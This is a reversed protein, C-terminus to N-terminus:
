QEPLPMLCKSVPVQEAIDGQSNLFQGVCRGEQCDTGYGLIRFHVEYRRLDSCVGALRFPRVPAWEADFRAEESNASIPKQEGHYASVHVSVVLTRSYCAASSVDCSNAKGKFTFIINKHPFVLLYKSILSALCDYSLHGGIPLPSLAPPLPPLSLLGRAAMPVWIRERNCLDVSSMVGALPLVSTM